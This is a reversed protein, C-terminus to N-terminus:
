LSCLWRSISAVQNEENLNAANSLTGNELQRWIEGAMRREIAAGVFFTHPSHGVKSFAERIRDLATRATKWHEDAGAPDIGGKLEGLAVYSNVANFKSIALEAPALKFLCLDVNGKFLPITLNYVLTRSGNEGEWSIGRLSLEIESDESTMAAWKKTKLHQWHYPIGAITLTSIIARSLKRQALAGGVNRMSGGLTDGRTLLFRFVLEEVFKEGAPELFKKILGNVAEIKDEPTLYTLSKDSLGAATLLGMEIGKHNLLDNPNAAQSAAEQLARAQAVYPTARRNKELALAIFGARTAAYTTILDDSSQLHSRYANM